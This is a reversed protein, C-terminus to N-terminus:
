AVPHKETADDVALHAPSRMVPFYPRFITSLLVRHKSHAKHDLTGLTQLHSIVQLLSAISIRKTAYFYLSNAKRISSFKQLPILKLTAGLKQKIIISTDDPM